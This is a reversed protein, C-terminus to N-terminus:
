AARLEILYAHLSFLGSGISRDKEKQPFQWVEQTAAFLTALIKLTM